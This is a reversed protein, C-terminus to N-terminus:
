YNILYLLMSLALRQGDEDAYGLCAYPRDGELSCSWDYPSYLIATRDNFTVSELRPRTTGRRGLQEALKPRYIMEGLDIGTEGRYIPHADPLASLADDPALKKVMARFALDFPRSGCCAEALLVGGHDLYRRLATLEDDSLEFAQHGTMFVIPYEYLSADTPRLHRSQAVVDINARDRLLAALRVMAHPDAKYDGDHVLRALRIAGRPVEALRQDTDRRAPVRVVELRDRLQDSGTAYAALNTGLRFARESHVPIDQLEWLCSLARPSFFVGTRCGASLAQLGHTDVLDFHSHFVPHDITLDSLADDPWLEGALAKFGQAFDASGCCAEFLLTGGARDVYDKLKQKDAATFDPFSHGTIYLIPSQRLDELSVDLTTSQWTTPKGLKEGIWTTLHELDNVNRNWDGDWQVKQILVPRNGKALFLLCFATDTAQNGWDGERSQEEVLEAAGARYWDHQGFARMGSIMGAREMAYLYYYKWSARGPNREVTFNRTLWELGKALVTNQQYRGCGPYAGDVFVHRGGVHLSQGCIYLSAIAAATMSGYSTQGRGRYGWGGDANQAAAYHANAKKWVTAPVTIGAKAAEHLGLLAFQTNSNDTWNRRGADYGWMGNAAQADILWNAALLLERRQLPDGTAAFVQAKLSVVYTRQNPVTKLKEVAKKIAPDDAPVGANLMALACLATAGGEHGGGDWSGDPRQQRRLWALASQVSQQVQESTIEQAPAPAALCLALGIVLVVGAPRRPAGSGNAQRKHSSRRM